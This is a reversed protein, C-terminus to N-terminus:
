MDDVRTSICELVRKITDDIRAICSSLYLQTDDAYLHYPMDHQKIIDSLTSTYLTFLFPGLVSGQPVGFQLAKPKSKIDGVVTTQVRDILYSELWKLATGTIGFTTELRNLMIQHDLTDFAASLDLLALVSV